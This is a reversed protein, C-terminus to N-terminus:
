VCVLIVNKSLFVKLTLLFSVGAFDFITGLKFKSLLRDMLFQWFWAFVGSVNSKFFIEIFRVHSRRNSASRDRAGDMPGKNM